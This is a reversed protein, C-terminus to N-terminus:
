IARCDLQHLLLQKSTNADADPLAQELLRKLEHVYVSLAEGPHLMRKHFDSLLVFRAPAMQAIIKEKAASYSGQEEYTLKFWAAIAEGELLTPLKKAKM